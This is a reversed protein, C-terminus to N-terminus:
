LPGINSDKILGAEGVHIRSDTKQERSNTYIPVSGLLRSGNILKQGYLLRRQQEGHCPTPQRELCCLDQKHNLWVVYTIRGGDHALM